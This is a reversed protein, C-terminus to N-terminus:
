VPYKPLFLRGSGLLQEPHDQIDVLYHILDEAVTRAYAGDRKVRKADSVTFVPLADSTVERIV